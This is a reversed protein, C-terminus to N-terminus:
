IEYLQMVYSHRDSDSQQGARLDTKRFYCSDQAKFQGGRYVSLEQYTNIFNRKKTPIRM